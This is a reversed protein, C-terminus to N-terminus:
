TGKFFGVPLGFKVPNNLEKWKGSKGTEKKKTQNKGSNRVKNKFKWPNEGM